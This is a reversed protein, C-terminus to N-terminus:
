RREHNAGAADWLLRPDFTLAATMTLMVVMAFAVIGAGPV